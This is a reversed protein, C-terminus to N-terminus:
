ISLGRERRDQLTNEIAVKQALGLDPGYYAAVKDQIDRDIRGYTPDHWYDGLHHIGCWCEDQVVVVKAPKRLRGDWTWKRHFAADSNEARISAGVAVFMVLVAGITVTAGIINYASM